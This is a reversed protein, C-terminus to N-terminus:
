KHGGSYRYGSRGSGDDWQRDNGSKDQGAVFVILMVVAVYWPYLRRGNM